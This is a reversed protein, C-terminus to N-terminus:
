FDGQIIKIKSTQNLLNIFSIKHTYAAMNFEVTGGPNGVRVNYLPPIFCQNSDAHKSRISVTHFAPLLYWDLFPIWFSWFHGNKVLFTLKEVFIGM